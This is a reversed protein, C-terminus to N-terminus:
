VNVSSWGQLRSPAEIAGDGAAGFPRYAKHLLRIIFFAVFFVIFRDLPRWLAFFSSACFGNISGIVTGLSMSLAVGYSDAIRPSNTRAGEASLFHADQV